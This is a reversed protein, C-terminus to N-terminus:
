SSVSAAENGSPLDAATSWLGLLTHRYDDARRRAHAGEPGRRVIGALRFILWRPFAGISVAIAWLTASAVGRRAGLVRRTNRFVVANVGNGYRLRSSADGHHLVLPGPLYGIAFGADRARLCWELDEAYMFLSEDLPGVAEWTKRQILLAAGTVWDVRQARVPPTTELRYGAGVSRPLVHGLGFAFFLEKGVTPFAACSGQVSGDPNVLGLGLAGLEPHADLHASAVALSGPACETDSNLLLLKRGRARAAARNNAVAFGLNRESELLDTTPFAARVMAPSGDTSANDAVLVECSGAQQTVVSELCKRLLERTNWNVIIVSLDIEASAV